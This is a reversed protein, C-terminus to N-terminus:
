ASYRHSRPSGVPFQAEPLGAKVKDHLDQSVAIEAGERRRDSQRWAITGTAKRHLTLRNVERVEESDPASQTPSVTNGTMACVEELATASLDYGEPFAAHHLSM